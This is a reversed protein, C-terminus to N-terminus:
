FELRLLVSLTDRPNYGVYESYEDMTYLVSLDIFWLKLDAGLSPYGGKLGCMVGIGKTLNLKLGMNTHYLFNSFSANKVFGVIDNFDLSAKIGLWKWFVREWGSGVNLYFNSKVREKEGTIIDVSDFGKGIDLLSMAFSFGNQLRLTTGLDMSFSTNTYKLEISDLTSTALVDVLEAIGVPSSYFFSSVHAVGGVELRMNDSIDFGHGYGFSSAIKLFPILGVSLGEGSTNLGGSLNLSGGLGFLVLSSSANINLIPITGTLKSLVQNASDVFDDSNFANSSVEIIESFSGVGVELSPLVLNFKDNSLSAPNIYFGKEVGKLSMGSCGMARYERELPMFSTFSSAFLSLSVALILLVFLLRKM